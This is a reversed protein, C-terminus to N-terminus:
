LTKLWAEIKPVYYKLYGQENPHWGDGVGETSTDETYINPIFVTDPNSRLYGFPPCSINLDCVPIGWKKCCKIAAHYANDETKDSDFYQTMKHVAIYGIKKGHFRILAQKLMNEFAGYFTTDDLTANYGDSMAGLPRDSYLDNVGGELIIYDADERMNVVTRSICHKGTGEAYMITAGSVGINEVTMNNRKGIITAYGGGNTARAECISDGNFSIIKGYLPNAAESQTDILKQLEEVEKKDAKSEILKNWFGNNGEEYLGFFIESVISTGRNQLTIRMEVVQLKTVEANLAEVDINFEVYETQTASCINKTTTGIARITIAPTKEFTSKFSFCYHGSVFKSIPIKQVISVSATGDNTLEFGNAITDTEVIKYPPMTSSKYWKSEDQMLPDAIINNPNLFADFTSITSNQVEEIAETKASEIDNLANTKAETINTVGDENQEFLTQRWQELIDAHTQNISIGKKYGIIMIPIANNNDNDTYEDSFTIATDSFVIQRYRHYNPHYYGFSLAKDKIHITQEHINDAYSGTSEAFILVFHKYETLDMSISQADFDATPDPNEWLIDGSMVGAMTAPIEQKTQTIFEQLQDRLSKVNKAANNANEAAQNAKSEAELAEISKLLELLQIYVNKPPDEVKSVDCLASKRCQIKVPTTTNLEGAYLGISVENIGSLIPVQCRDGTFVVEIVKKQGNRDFSFVATKVPYSSWQENDYIFNIYYDSNGCVIIPPNETDVSAVKNIISINFEM